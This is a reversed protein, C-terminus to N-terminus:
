KEGGLVILPFLGGQVGPDPNLFRGLRIQHLVVIDNDKWDGPDTPNITLDEDDLHELEPFEAAGGIDSFPEIGATMLGRKEFDVIWLGGIVEAILVGEDLDPEKGISTFNFDARVRDGALLQLRSM